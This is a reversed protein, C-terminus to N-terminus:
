FIPHYVLVTAGHNSHKTLVQFLTFSCKAGIFMSAQLHKYFNCSKKIIADPNCELLCKPIVFKCAGAVVKCIEIVLKWAGHISRLSFHLCSCLQIYAFQYTTSAFTLTAISHTMINIIFFWCIMPLPMAVLFMYLHQCENGVFICFVCSQFLKNIWSCLDNRGCVLPLLNNFIQLCPGYPLNGYFQGIHLFLHLEKM